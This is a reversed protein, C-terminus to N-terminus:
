AAGDGPGVIETLQGRARELAEIMSAIPVPDRGQTQGYITVAIVGDKMTASAWHDGDYMLDAVPWDEDVEYAVTIEIRPDTM